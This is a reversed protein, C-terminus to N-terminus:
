LPTKQRERAYNNQATTWKGELTRYGKMYQIKGMHHGNAKMKKIYDAVRGHAKHSITSLRAERNNDPRVPCLDYVQVSINM